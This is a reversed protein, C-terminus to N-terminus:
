GAEIGELLLLKRKRDIGGAYGTMSGNTGIVRHCPIIISIRNHGVAGGVARASTRAHQREQEIARAIEGYSMTKGYPIELMKKWVQIRFDSGILHLPPTFDPERGSFYSDLWHKTEEFVPLEKECCTESLGQAYYKQGEFWLGTLGTEDAALLIRGLPSDYKATFTM